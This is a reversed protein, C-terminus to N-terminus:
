IYERHIQTDIQELLPRMQAVIHRAQEIDGGDRFQELALCLDAFGPAGVSRAPSKNRHGLAALAALDEQQLASEMEAIGQQASQLFKLAFKHIKVPDSGITKALVSLDIVASHDTAIPRPEVPPGVSPVVPVLGNNKPQRDAMETRPQGAALMYQAIVAYLQEFAVPKGIFNNMGAAFCRAKDEKGANATMAIIHTGALEPNGRIQRTAELGDMVPMQVDMLVCDFRRKLLMEIAEQGNSAISVGVGVERLLELTVQQNFLNDEVLLVSAGNLVQLNLMAPLANALPERGKALRLSFWFTSGQNLQSDLGLTGGMLEVLQKSIALGLGTGGYKRTTSADAQHFAQFLKDIEGYSLGIGTDHVEFRLLCDDASEELMRTRITIEGKETFKIANGTYNLLVQALRLPDGRLPMSLRSDLDFVLGLGKESASYSFLNFLNEFVTNLEFDVIELELKGAEIKSFDLIDNILDLLHHAAFDIKAVYDRQKPDLGTKLALKAMGIISNMPTRIEHSINSLFMSKAANAAEAANMANLVRADNDKRETIDRAAIIYAHEQEVYIDNTVLELPFRSGDKRQGVVERIVGSVGSSEAERIRKGADANPGSAEDTLLMGFNKGSVERKSYGFVNEAKDNWAIIEGNTDLQIFADPSNDFIAILKAESLRRSERMSAFAHVLNGLEDKSAPPLVASFDGVALRDAAKGLRLMPKVIFASVATYILLGIFVSTLCLTVIINLYTKNLVREFRAHSVILEVSGVTQGSFTVPAAFLTGVNELDINEPQFDAKNRTVMLKGDQNFINVKQVDQLRVIREAVAELTSYDYSVIMNAVAEAILTVREHGSRETEDTLRQKLHYVRLSGNAGFAILMGIIVVALLKGRLSLNIKRM